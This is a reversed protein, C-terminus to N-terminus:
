PEPQNLVTPLERRSHVDLKRYVNGLHMEVTKVTVFLAQAIEKNTAAEAAMRAIRRESPTLADVGIRPREPVRLGTAKLEDGATAALEGAGCDHAVDLAARLPERAEARANRRRLAAGLATLSRVYELRQPSAGTLAVANRLLELDDTVEGMVRLATGHAGPTGWARAVQLAESAVQYAREIDGLRHHILARALRGDQGNMSHAGFREIQAAAGELTALAAKLEGRAFLLLGRTFLLVTMPRGTVQARSVASSQWIREAEDLEGRDVLADVLAGTPLGGVWGNAADVADVALRADAEAERLRGAYRLFQAHWITALGFWAPSGLERAVRQGHESLELGLQINEAYRLVIATFPFWLRVPAHPGAIAIHAAREALAVARDRDAREAHWRAGHALLDPDGPADASFHGLSEARELAAELQHPDEAALTLRTAELRLRLEHAQPPLADCAADLEAIQPARRGPGLAWAREDLARARLVPDGTLHGAETLVEGARPDGRLSIVIGLDFLVEARLEDGGVSEVLARELLAEAAIPAGRKSARRAAEILLKVTQPDGGPETQTLHLAIREADAGSARLQAAARAHWASREPISLQATVATALLPHRFQMAAGEALVGAAELEAAAAQADAVAALQACEALTAEDGLVMIARALARGHESVRALVRRALDRPEVRAVAEASREGALDRLLEDLLFPNGGTADLAAAIFAGDHSGALEAVAEPGLARPRLIEASPDCVLSTLAPHAEIDPPRSAVVLAVPLDDLRRALYDLARMSSEDAWHADDVAFVLPRREALNALLWYLGHLVAEESGAVVGPEIIAAGHGAAGALVQEREVGVLDALPRALAQRMVGLAFRRELEAGRAHLVQMGDDAARRRLAGVLRTKGIGAPGEIVLLGGEGRRAEALRGDLRALEREREVLRPLTAAGFMTPALRPNGGYRRLRGDRLTVAHGVVGVDLEGAAGDGGEFGGVLVGDVLEDMGAVSVVGAVVRATLFSRALGHAPQAIGEGVRRDDGLVEDGTVVADDSAHAEAGRLDAVQVVDGSGTLTQLGFVDVNPANRVALEGFVPHDAVVHSGHLLESREGRAASMLWPLVPVRQCRRRGSLPLRYRHEGASRRKARRAVMRPPRSRAAEHRSLAAQM